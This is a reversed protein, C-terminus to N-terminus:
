NFGHLLGDIAVWLLLGVYVIFVAFYSTVTFWFGFPADARSMTDGRAQIRGTRLGVYLMWGCLQPITLFAVGGVFAGGTPPFGLLLCAIAAVIPMTAVLILKHRWTWDWWLM